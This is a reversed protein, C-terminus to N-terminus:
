KCLGISSDGKLTEAIGVTSSIFDTTLLVKNTYDNNIFYYWSSDCDLIVVSNLYNCYRFANSEIRYVSNPITIEKLSDCRTFAFEKIVEVNSGLTVETLSACQTFAGKGIETVNEPIIIKKLGTCDSFLYDSIKNISDPLSISIFGCGSFAYEGIQTVTEPITIKTLHYNSAFANQEITKIGDHMTVSQLSQCRNFAYAEIKEIGYIEFTKIFRENEFANSKIYSVTIDHYKAPIVAETVYAKPVLGAVYFYHETDNKVQVFNLYTYDVDYYYGSIEIDNFTLTPSDWRVDCGDVYKYEGAQPFNIVMNEANFTTTYTLKNQTELLEDYVVFSATYDIPTYEAYVTVDGIELSFDEWKGTYGAKEPFEPLEIETNEVNYDLIAIETDDALFNVHYTILDYIAHVKIDTELRLKYDEWHTTYGAVQPIEPAVVEHFDKITTNFTAVVADNVIYDITYDIMAVKLKIVETGCELEKEWYSYCGSVETPEPPIIEKYNLINYNFEGVVKNSGDIYKVTYEIPEYIANIQINGKTLEYNEWEGPYYHDHEPCKPEVINYNEVTYIQTSICEGLSIFDVTYETPKRTSHLELDTLTRKSFDYPKGDVVWADLSYGDETEPLPYSEIIEGKQVNIPYGDIIKGDDYFAVSILSDEYTSWYGYVNINKTITSASFWENYDSSTFWGIFVNKDSDPNEMEPLEIQSGYKASFEAHREGDVYFNITYDATAKNTKCSILCLAAIAAAFTILIIAWKKM